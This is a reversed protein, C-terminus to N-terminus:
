DTFTGGSHLVTRHRPVPLPIEQTTAATALNCRQYLTLCTTHHQHLDRALVALRNDIREDFVSGLQRLFQIFRQGPVTALFKRVVSAERQRCVDVNIKAIRLARPLAPRVLVGIAQESLVKWLAGVQRHM